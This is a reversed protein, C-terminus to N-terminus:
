SSQESVNTEQTEILCLKTVPRVYIGHKTKVKAVRVVGDHGPKCEIVRGLPWHGRPCQPDVVIVIDGVSLNRAPRLWKRREILCPVYEKLSRKWFGEVIAQAHRWKRRSSVEANTIVDPPIHPYPRGLLFHNPTLPEPDRPDVSIHTLPRSNLLSEVEVLVTSLVEDTAPPGSLIKCLATKASRVLREWAGGFHPAAPPNFNWKIRQQSLVDSMKSQNWSEMCTWLEREAAVFNKGNDSYIIAPTGRRNVFRRFAMLFSDTDLSFSVELHVARTSMCTFLCGYRKEHFRRVRVIIPGFCDIGVCSFPPEFAQLRAAPLPAMFPASPKSSWRKCFTCIRIVSKVAQRAKLVLYRQRLECLTLEVSGHQITEHVANIIMNTLPNKPRLIIPHRADYPLEARDIRGQVRMLGDKDIFPSLPLLKSHAKLSKGSLMCSIEEGYYEHQALTLCVIFARDLETISLPSTQRERRDPRCNNIFRIIYAMVQRVRKLDHSRHIADNLPGQTFHVHGAWKTQLEETEAENVSRQPPRPWHDEGQYLFPPGNFWRNHMLLKSPSLGRSCDDAPNDRTRVYHWQSADTSDVIEAIRNAVFANYRSGTSSLWHLVTLSDTWYYISSTTIRFRQQLTTGLRPSILAAQLELRPITLYKLPAVRAKSCIFSVAISGDQQLKRLNRQGKTETENCTNYATSFSSRRSWSLQEGARSSVSQRGKKFEVLALRIESALVKRAETFVEQQLDSEDASESQMDSQFPAHSRLHEGTNALALVGATSVNAVKANPETPQAMEDDILDCRICVEKGNQDEFLVCSCKNCCTALMRHGLLLREAM